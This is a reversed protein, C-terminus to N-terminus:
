QPPASPLTTSPDGAMAARKARAAERHAMLAAKCDPSLEQTHGKFCQAVAGHGPKVDPCLKEFDAACVARLKPLPTTQASATGALVTLALVAATQVNM